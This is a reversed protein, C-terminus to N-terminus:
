YMLKRIFRITTTGKISRKFEQALRGIENEMTIMWRIKYRLITILEQHKLSKGTDPCIAPNPMEPMIIVPKYKPAIGATKIPSGLPVLLVHNAQQMTETIMIDHLLNQLQASRRVM